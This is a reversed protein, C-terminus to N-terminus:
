IYPNVNCVQYDYFKKWFQSTCWMCRSCSNSIIKGRKREIGDPPKDLSTWDQLSRRSRETSRNFWSFPWFHFSNNCWQCKKKRKYTYYWGKGM